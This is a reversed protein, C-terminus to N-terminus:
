SILLSLKVEKVLLYGFCQFRHFYIHMEEPLVDSLLGTSALTSGFIQRQFTGTKKSLAVVASEIVVLFVHRLFHLFIVRCSEEGFLIILCILSCQSGYACRQFPGEQVMSNPLM